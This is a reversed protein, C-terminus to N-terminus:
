AALPLVVLTRQLFNSVILGMMVITKGLGMEDALLGGHVGNPPNPDGERELAWQVAERQHPKADLGAQQLYSNFDNLQQNLKTM